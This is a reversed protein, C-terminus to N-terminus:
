AVSSLKRGGLNYGAGSADSKKCADVAITERISSYFETHLLVLM